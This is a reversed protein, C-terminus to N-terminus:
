SLLGNFGNGLGTSIKDLAGVIIPLTLVPGALIFVALLIIAIKKGSDTMASVLQNQRGLGKMILAAILAVLLIAAMAAMLTKIVAGSSTGFFAGFTRNYGNTLDSALVISSGM